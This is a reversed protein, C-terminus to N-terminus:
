VGDASILDHVEGALAKEIMLGSTMHELVKFAVVWIAFIYTSKM